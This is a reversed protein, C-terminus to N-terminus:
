KQGKYHNRQIVFNSATAAFLALYMLLSGWSRNKNFFWYIIAGAIVLMALTFVLQFIRYNKQTM